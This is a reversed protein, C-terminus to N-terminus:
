QWVPTPETPFEPNVAPNLVLGRLIGRYTVFDASNSLGVDPLVSWDSDALLKKAKSKCTDKAYSDQTSEWLADLESQTPKPSSDLWDLGEYSDGNLAWFKGPYNTTLILAYDIM